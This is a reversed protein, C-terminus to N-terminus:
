DAAADKKSDSQIRKNYAKRLRYIDRFFDRELVSAMGSCRFHKSTAQFSYGSSEIVGSDEWYFMEKLEQIYMKLIEHKTKMTYLM